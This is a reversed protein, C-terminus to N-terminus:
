LLNKLSQPPNLYDVRREMKQTKDELFIPQSEAYADFADMLREDMIHSRGNAIPRVDVKNCLLGKEELSMCTLRSAFQDRSLTGFPNKSNDDLLSALSIRAQATHKKGDTYNM